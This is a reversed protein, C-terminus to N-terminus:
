WAELNFEQLDFWFGMGTVSDIRAQVIAEHGEEIELFRAFMERSEGELGNVKRRYFNSTEVETDLFNYLLQIEKNQGPSKRGSM